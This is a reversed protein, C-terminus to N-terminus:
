VKELYKWGAENKKEVLGRNKTYKNIVDIVNPIM